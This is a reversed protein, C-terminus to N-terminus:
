NRTISVLELTEGTLEDIELVFGFGPAYFKIEVENEELATFDQIEVCGDLAGFSVRVSQDLGLITGIDEAIGIGFEQRFTMGVTPNAPMVLGPKAGDLGAEWSGEIGAVLGTADYSVSLEGFYWVNGLADQAYYDLTDEVLVGDMTEVARVLVCEVGMVTKTDDTVTVEVVEFGESSTKHYTMTTGPVLPFFPNDVQNVFDIPDILPDYPGGGLLGCVEKRAELQSLVGELGAAFDEAAQAYCAEVEEPDLLNLCNAIALGVDEQLGRIASRAVVTATASCPDSAQLLWRDLSDATRDLQALLLQGPLPASESRSSSSAVLAGAALAVAVMALPTLSFLARLPKM